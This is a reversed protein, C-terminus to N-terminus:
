TQEHFLVEGGGITNLSNYVTGILMELATKYDMPIKASSQVVKAVSDVVATCEVILDFTSGTAKVIRGGDCKEIEIM